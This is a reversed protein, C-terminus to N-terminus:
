FAWDGNTFVPVNEGNKKVGIIELDDTGIMFDVHEISNNAGHSLLDKNSLKDGNKITTPYAKGIAVHVSANEDFLTNFFLTKLKSIPSSKPILAIEGFYHTGKDTNILNKLIEYGKKAGFDIIKGNKLTVFFDDIINGNYSLPMSSKITGTTKLRHPATFVEETPMNAIFCVGDKAKEKASTWVHDDALYIKVDTGLSNKIILYDFNNANLFNAREELNKVHLDWAKLPNQQDLRMCKEIALSLEKEPDASDKYVLKAWACTPVSVVCWRIGNEMVCDSFKKLAKSKAKSYADLKDSDVEKFVNPDSADIYVYCYNEKILHEKAMVQWKPIISLTEKEASLFRIKEFLDDQYTVNVDKAGLMFATESMKLAVERREIPCIIQLNQGKQLNVGQKLTLLCFNSLTKESFM